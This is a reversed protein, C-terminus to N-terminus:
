QKGELYHPCRCLCDNISQKGITILLDNLTTKEQLRKRRKLLSNIIKSDQQVVLERKIVVIEGPDITEKKSWRIVGLDLLLDRVQERDKLMKSIIDMKAAYEKGDKLMLDCYDNHYKTFRWQTWFFYVIGVGISIGIFINQTM